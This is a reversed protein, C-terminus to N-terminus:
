DFSLVISIRGVMTYNQNIHLAQWEVPFDLADPIITVHFPCVRSFANSEWLKM